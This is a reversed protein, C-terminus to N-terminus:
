RTMGIRYTAGDYALIFPERGQIGYTDALHLWVADILIPDSIEASGTRNAERLAAALAPLADAEDTELRHDAPLDSPVVVLSAETPSTPDGMGTAAKREAENEQMEFYVGIVGISVAAITAFVIMDARRSYVRGLHSGGRRM